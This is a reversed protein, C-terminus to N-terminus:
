REAATIKKIFEVSVRDIEALSPEIRGLSLLGHDARKVMIVEASAGAGALAEAMRASSAFPVVVDIEGHILLFPPAEKTVLRVPSISEARARVSPDSLSGGLLHKQCNRPWRGIAPQTLDFPGFYAVVGRVAYDAPSTELALMAALHAGASDGLLALRKPDLGITAAHARLWKLATRCDDLCAPWPSMPLLRYDLAAALFGHSALLRGFGRHLSKSGTEWGGGHIMLVGPTKEGAGQPLFLDLRLPGNPTSAYVLNKKTLYKYPGASARRFGYLVWPFNIPPAIVWPSQCVARTLLNIPHVPM